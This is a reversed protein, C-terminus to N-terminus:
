SRQCLKKDGNPLPFKIYLSQNGSAYIQFKGTSIRLQFNCKVIKNGFNRAAPRCQTIEDVFNRAALKCFTQKAVFNSIAAQLFRNQQRFEQKCSAPLSKTTSIGTQLNSEIFKTALIKSQM